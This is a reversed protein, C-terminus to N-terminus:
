MQLMLSVGRPSHAESAQLVPAHATTSSADLLELGGEQKLLTMGLRQTSLGRQLQYDFVPREGTVDASFHLLCVRPDDVVSPVIEALHSAVFVLAAAHSVLRSIV